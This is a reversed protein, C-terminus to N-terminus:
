DLVECVQDVADTLILEKYVSDIKERLGRRCQELSHRFEDPSAKGDALRRGTSFVLNVWAVPTPGGQGLERELQMGLEAALTDSLRMTEERFVSAFEARDEGTEGKKLAEAWLRCEEAVDDLAREALARSESSEIRELVPNLSTRFAPYQELLAITHRHHGRGAAFADLHVLLRNLYPLLAPGQGFRALHQQRSSRIAERCQAARAALEALRQSDQLRSLEEVTARYDDLAEELTVCQDPDLEPNEESDSAFQSCAQELQPVLQAALERVRALDQSQAATFLDDITIVPSSM